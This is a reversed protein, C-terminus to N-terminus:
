AGDVLDSVRGQQVLEVGHGLLEWRQDFVHVNVGKGIHHFRGHALRCHHTYFLLPLIM